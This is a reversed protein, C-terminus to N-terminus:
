FTSIEYRAFEDINSDQSLKPSHILIEIEPLSIIKEIVENFFSKILPEQLISDDGLVHAVYTTAKEVEVKGNVDPPFLACYRSVVEILEDCQESSFSINHAKCVVEVAQISTPISHSSSIDLKHNSRECYLWTAKTPVVYRANVTNNFALFKTLALDCHRHALLQPSAASFFATLVPLRICYLYLDTENGSRELLGKQVLNGINDFSKIENMINTTSNESQYIMGPSIFLTAFLRPDNEKYIIKEILKTYPFTRSNNWLGTKHSLLVWIDNPDTQIEKSQIKASVINYAKKINEFQSHPHADQKMRLSSSAQNSKSALTAQVSAAQDQSSSVHLYMKPVEALHSLWSDMMIELNELDENNQIHAGCMTILRCNREVFVPVTSKFGRYIVDKGSPLTARSIQRCTFARM